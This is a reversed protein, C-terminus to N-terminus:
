DLLLKQTHVQTGDKQYVRAIIVGKAGRMALPLLFQGKLEVVLSKGLVDTLSVFSGAPVEGKYHIVYDGKLLTPYLAIQQESLASAIVGDQDDEDEVNPDPDPDMDPDPDPDTNPDPDPDANTDTFFYDSTEENSFGFGERIYNLYEYASYEYTYVGLPRNLHHQGYGEMDGWEKLSAFSQINRAADPWDENNPFNQLVWNWAINQEGFLNPNMFNIGDGDQDTFDQYPRMNLGTPELINSVINRDVSANEINQMWLGWVAGTQPFTIDNPVQPRGDTVINDSVTTAGAYETPAASYGINMGIANNIMVNHRANGGSRLQVGHAAGRMLVNGKLVTEGACDNQIYINHNFQNANADEIEESWGCHDFFNEEIVLNEIRSVFLGQINGVGGTHETLSNHTWTQSVINRRFSFNRLFTTNKGQAAVWCYQFKCDEVLYNEGGSPGPFIALANVCNTNDFNPSAPDSTEKYFHIGVIAVHNRPQALLRIFIQEVIIMPRAGSEGYYSLVLPEKASRGSKWRGLTGGSFTDGRKLLLYDPFGTRILADAAGITRKPTSPSLGDNDDNGESSSVYVQRSDESPTLVTWGYEDITGIGQGLLKPGAFFSVMIIWYVGKYNM